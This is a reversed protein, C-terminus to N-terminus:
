VDHHNAAIWLNVVNVTVECLYVCCSQAYLVHICHFVVDNGKGQTKMRLMLVDCEYFGDLHLVHM